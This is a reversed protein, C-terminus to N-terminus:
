EEPSTPSTSPGSIAPTTSRRSDADSESSSTSAPEPGSASTKSETSEAEAPPGADGGKEVAVEEFDLENVFEVVKQRSWGPNERQVAMGIIGITIATDEDVDDDDEARLTATIQEVYRQRWESHKLGTLQELLAADGLKSTSPYAYLKGRIRLRPEEAM